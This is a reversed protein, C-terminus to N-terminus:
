EGTQSRIEGQKVWAVTIRLDPCTYLEYDRDNVVVM